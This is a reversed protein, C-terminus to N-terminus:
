REYMLASSDFAAVQGATKGPFIEMELSRAGVLQMLVTGTVGGTARVRMHPLYTKTDWAIGTGASYSQLEGLEYKVLGTSIGVTAPDPTSGFAAFQRAVGQYNGFSIEVQGPDNGDYVVALHGVWHGDYQPHLGAYGNSGVLFWNGVLRGDIDYDIKGWRPLADRELLALLQDKLPEPTYEFLYAVHTKWVESATYQAPNIFGTLTLDDNEVWVDIGYGTPLGTYGILEGAKVAYNPNKTENGQLQGIMNSLAGAFRVLNSFRVRFTCTAEITVGYDDYASSGTGRLSRTVVSINGAMPSFVSDQVPPSAVAGKVYIYGHDIPTVHGGAMLGMPQIFAIDQLAIPSATITGTGKGVCAASGSGGVHIKSKDCGTATASQCPPLAAASPSPQSTQAVPPTGCASILVAALLGVGARAAGSM